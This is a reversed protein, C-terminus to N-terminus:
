VTKNKNDDCRRRYGLREFSPGWREDIIQELTSSLSRFTNKQYSQVNPIEQILKSYIDSEEWSTTTWEFHTYIKKMTGITDTTLEDFSVELLQPPPQSSKGATTTQQQQQLMSLDKRGEEYTEWLIEYQRLIFEQIMANTPTNLYTYWYTTDAMHAASRFVDYPNRHIYIFQAKPFLQLLLKMRATHVPSKLLLRKKTKPQSTTNNSSASTTAARLTLKHCLFLFAQIWRNKNKTTENNNNNSDNDNDGNENEFSYFARYEPEQRMFFLPM